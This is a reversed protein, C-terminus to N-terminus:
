SGSAQSCCCAANSGSRVRRFSERLRRAGCVPDRRRRDGAAGAATLVPISKVDDAFGVIAIFCRRASYQSRSIRSAPDAYAFIVVRRGALTAAIVAIGAGQPTPVRHSSRANPKALAHQLLLPRIAWTMGASSRRQSVVALLSLLLESITMRDLTATVGTGRDAGLGTRGKRRQFDLGTRRLRRRHLYVAGFLLSVNVGENTMLGAYGFALGMTAERVGWGAISIPLMTILM